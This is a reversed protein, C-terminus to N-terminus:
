ETCIFCLRANVLSQLKCEVCSTHTHSYYCVNRQDYKYENVPLFLIVCATLVTQNDNSHVCLMCDLWWWQITVSLSYPYMYLFVVLSGTNDIYVSVSHRVVNSGWGFRVGVMRLACSYFLIHNRIDLPCRLLRLPVWLGPYMYCVTMILCRNMAKVQVNGVYPVPKWYTESYIQVLMCNISVHKLFFQFFSISEM